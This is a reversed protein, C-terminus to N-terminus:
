EEGDERYPEPLPMWATIRIDSPLWNNTRSSWGTFGGSGSEFEYNNVGVSGYENTTLYVGRKQRENEREPLREGVPIWATQQLAEIAMRLAENEKDFIRGRIEKTDESMDDFTIECGLLVGLWKAAEKNTM